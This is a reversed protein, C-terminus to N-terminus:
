QLVFRGRRRAHESELEIFYMGRNWAQVNVMVQGDSGAPLQQRHVLRGDVSFIQLLAPKRAMDQLPISVKDTAPNPVIQLATEQQLRRISTLSDNKKYTITFCVTDNLPNDDHIFQDPDENVRLFYCYTFTTDREFSGDQMFKLGRCDVTDNVGIPVLGGGTDQVVLFFGAPIGTVGFLVFNSTDVADPGHNIVALDIQVSDYPELDFSTPSGERFILELDTNFTAQAYLRNLGPLTLLLLAAMLTIKKM